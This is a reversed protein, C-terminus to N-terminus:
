VYVEELLNRDAPAEHGRRLLATTLRYPDVYHHPRSNRLLRATADPPPTGDTPRVPDAALMRGARTMCRELLEPRYATTDGRGLGAIFYLRMGLRYTRPGVRDLYERALNAATRGEWGGHRSSRVPGSTTGDTRVRGLGVLTIGAMGLRSLAYKLLVYDPVAERDVTLVTQDYRGILPVLECLVSALYNPQGDAGILRRLPLGHATGDLYVPGNWARHDLCLGHPSLLDVLGDPTLPPRRDNRLGPDAVGLERLREQWLGIIRTGAPHLRGYTGAAARRAALETATHAAHERQCAIYLRGIQEEDLAAYDTGPHEADLYSWFGLTQTNTVGVTWSYLLETRHLQATARHMVDTWLMAKVHSLTLPKTPAVPVPAFLVKRLRPPGPASRSATM